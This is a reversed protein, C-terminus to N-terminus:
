MAWYPLTFSIVLLTVTFVVVPTTSKRKKDFYMLLIGGVFCLVYYLLTANVNNLEGCFYKMGTMIPWHILYLYLSLTGLWCLTKTGHTNIFHSIPTQDLMAFIILAGYVLVFFLPDQDSIFDSEVHGMVFMLAFFVYTLVELKMALRSNWRTEDEKFYDYIGYVMSGVCTGAVARLIAASVFGFYESGVNITGEAQIMYGYALIVVIPCLMTMFSRKMKKAIPYLILLALMMASLYWAQGLLYDINFQPDQIFGATQLLLAEWKFHFLARWVEGATTLPTSLTFVIFQLAFAMIFPAYFGKVKKMLYNGLNMPNEVKEIYQMMFFGSLLFFFEVVVVGFEIVGGIPIYISFFHCTMVTIAAIFRLLEITVIRTTQKAKM